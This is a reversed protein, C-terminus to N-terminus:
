WTWRIACTFRMIAPMSCETTSVSISIIATFNVAMLSNDAGVMAGWFTVNVYEEAGLVTEIDSHGEFEYQETHAWEKEWQGEVSSQAFQIFREANGGDFTAFHILLDNLDYSIHKAHVKIERGSESIEPQSTDIRFLQGDVKLVNNVLLNKWKGWEDLPHRLTIEWREDNHVSTCEIPDLIALGNGDFGTQPEHLDYVHITRKRELAWLDIGIINPFMENYPLGFNVTKKIRWYTKPYVQKMAAGEIKFNEFGNIISGSTLRLYSLPFPVLMPEAILEAAETQYPQGNLIVWSM